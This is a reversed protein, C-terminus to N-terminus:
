NRQNKLPQGSSYLLHKSWPFPAGPGEAFPLIFHQIQEKSMQFFISHSYRCIWVNYLIFTVLSKFALHCEYEVSSFIFLHLVNVSDSLSCFFVIVPSGSNEGLFCFGDVTLDKGLLGPAELVFRSHSM